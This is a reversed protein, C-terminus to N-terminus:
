SNGAHNEGTIRRYVKRAVSSPVRISVRTRKKGKALRDRGFRIVGPENEFEARLHKESLHWAKALQGITFHPELYEPKEDVTM